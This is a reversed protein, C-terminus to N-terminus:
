TKLKEIKDKCFNIENNQKQALKGFKRSDLEM